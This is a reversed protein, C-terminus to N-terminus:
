PKPAEEPGWDLRCCPMKSTSGGSLPWEVDSDEIQIDEERDTSGRAAEDEEASSSTRSKPAHEKELLKQALLGEEHPQRVEAADTGWDAALVESQALAAKRAINRIAKVEAHGSKLNNIALLRMVLM